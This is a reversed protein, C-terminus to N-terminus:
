AKDSAVTQLRQKITTVLNMRDCSPRQVEAATYVPVGGIKKFSRGGCNGVRNSCCMHKMQCPACGWDIVQSIRGVALPRCDGEFKGLSENRGATLTEDASSAARFISGTKGGAGFVGGRQM